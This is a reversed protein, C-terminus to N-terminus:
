CGTNAWPNTWSATTAEDRRIAPPLDGDPGPTFVNAEYQEATVTLNTFTAPWFAGYPVYFEVQVDNPFRSATTTLTQDPSGGGAPYHYVNVDVDNDAVLANPATPFYAVLEWQAGAVNPDDYRIRFAVNPSSYMGGTRINFQEYWVSGTLYADWVDIEPTGHGVLGATPLTALDPSVLYQDNHADTLAIGHCDPDFALAPTAVATLACAVAAGLLLRLRM